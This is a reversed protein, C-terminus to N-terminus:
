EFGIEAHVLMSCSRMPVPVGRYADLDLGIDDVRDVKPYLAIPTHATAVFAPRVV